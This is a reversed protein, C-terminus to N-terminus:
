KVRIRLSSINRLAQNQHIESRTVLILLSYKRTQFSMEPAYDSYEDESM